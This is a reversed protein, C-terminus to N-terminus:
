KHVAESQPPSSLQGNVGCQHRREVTVAGCDSPSSSVITSSQLGCSSPFFSRAWLERTISPSRTQHDKCGLNPSPPGVLCSPQQACRGLCPRLCHGEEHLARGFGSPESTPTGHQRATCAALANEMDRRSRRGATPVPATGDTCSTSRSSLNAHAPETKEDATLIEDQSGNKKLFFFLQAAGLVLCSWKNGIQSSVSIRFHGGLRVNARSQSFELRFTPPKARTVVNRM